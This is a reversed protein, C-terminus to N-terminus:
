HSQDCGDASGELQRWVRDLAHDAGWASAAAWALERLQDRELETGKYGINHQPEAWAHEFLTRVQMEFTTPVDLRQEWDKPRVFAPIPFVLHDSEYGFAIPSEPEKRVDEVAGLVERLRGKVPELDSRFFVIVRGAVQDEIQHLPADYKLKGDVERCAKLVFEGPQKVRFAIRDIRPVSELAGMILRELRARLDELDAERARYAETLEAADHV